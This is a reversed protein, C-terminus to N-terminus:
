GVYTREKKRVLLIETNNLADIYVALLSTERFVM